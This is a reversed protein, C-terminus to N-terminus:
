RRRWLLVLLACAVIASAAGATSSVNCGWGSDEELRTVGPNPTHVESAPSSPPDTAPPTPPTEVMDPTPTPAESPVCVRVQPCDSGECPRAYQGESGTVSLAEDTCEFGPPCAGDPACVFPTCYWARYPGELRTGRPCEPPEAPPLGPVDALALGPWLAAVLIAGCAFRSALWCAIGTAGGSFRSRVQSPVGRAALVGLGSTSASRSTSTSKTRSTGTTTKMTESKRTGSAHRGCGRGRGSRPPSITRM